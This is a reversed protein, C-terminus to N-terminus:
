FRQMRALELPRQAVLNLQKQRRKLEGLLNQAERQVLGLTRDAHRARVVWEYPRAADAGVGHYVATNTELQNKIRTRVNTLDILYAELGSCKAETEAYDDTPVSRFADLDTRCLHKREIPMTAPTMANLEM